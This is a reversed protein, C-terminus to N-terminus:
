LLAFVTALPLVKLVMNLTEKTASTPAHVVDGAMLVPDPATGNRIASIDFKAAARQGKETRFVVVTFDAIETLGGGLSVVQMLTTKGRLPIVAPNRFAGELTIRQSNFERVIVTVQPDKLYKKGLRAALDREVEQATRNAVTIEGVLPLNVSGAESVQVSRQLEPVKFVSVEIMDAPGIRYGHGGPTASATLVEAAKAAGPSRKTKPDGSLGVAGTEVKSTEIPTFNNNLSQGCGALSGAVFAM